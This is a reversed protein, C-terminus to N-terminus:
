NLTTYEGLSDNTGICRKWACSRPMPFYNQKNLTGKSDYNLQIFQLCWSQFFHFPFYQIRVQNRNLLLYDGLRPQIEFSNDGILHAIRDSAGGACNIVYTAVVTEEDVTVGNVANPSGSGGVFMDEVAVKSGGSGVPPSCKEVIKEFPLQALDDGTNSKMFNSMFSSLSSFGAVIMILTVLTAQQRSEAPVKSDVSIYAGMGIMICTSLLLLGHLGTQFPSTAM